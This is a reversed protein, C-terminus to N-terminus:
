SVLPLVPSPCRRASLRVVYVSTSDLRVPPRSAHPWLTRTSSAPTVRARTLASRRLASRAAPRALGLALPALSLRVAIRAAASVSLRGHPLPPARRRLGRPRGPPSSRAVTMESSATMKHHEARTLVRPGVLSFLVACVHSFLAGPPSKMLRCWDYQKLYLCDM